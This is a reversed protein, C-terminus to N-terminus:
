REFVLTSNDTQTIKLQQDTAVYHSASMLGSIILEEWYGADGECYMETIYMENISISTGNLTINGGGSNCTSNLGFTAEDANITISASLTAPLATFGKAATEIGTLNWKGALAELDDNKECGAFVLILTLIYFYRM